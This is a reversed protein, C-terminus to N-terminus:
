DQHNVYSPDHGPPLSVSYNGNADPTITGSQDGSLTLTTSGFGTGDPQVVQGSITYTQAGFNATVTQPASM